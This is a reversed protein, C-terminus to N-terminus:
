IWVIFNYNPRIVLHLYVMMNQGCNTSVLIFIVQKPSDKALERAKIVHYIHRGIVLSAKGFLHSISQGSTSMKEFSSFEIVKKLMKEDDELLSKRCSNGLFDALKLIERRLDKKMDEYLMFHVNEKEQSKKFWEPVMKFYDGFDCKGSIFVEFYDDFIGDKFHYITDFGITHYCFSIVVDKPNRAVFVYKVDPNYPTM